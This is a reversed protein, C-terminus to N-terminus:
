QLPPSAFSIVGQNKAGGDKECFALYQPAWWLGCIYCNAKSLTWGYTPWFTDSKAHTRLFSSKVMEIVEKTDISGSIVM